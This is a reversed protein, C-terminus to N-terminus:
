EYPPDPENESDRDASTGTHLKTGSSSVDIIRARKRVGKIFTNGLLSMKLRRANRIPAEGKSLSPFCIWCIVALWEGKAKRSPM